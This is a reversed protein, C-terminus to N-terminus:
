QLTKVRDGVKPPTSGSFTGDASLEEVNTIVIEGVKTDLKRLVRGTAPDRIVDDGRRVELKDGVKVGGKSGVNLIVTDGAVHAVLGEVIVVHTPLRGANAEIKKTVDAVAATVAEGLVTAAFNKSTMDVAGGAGAGGGAGSGVLTTGSRTSEGTGNVAALIEATETSVLRASLAVVAKAQRRGVGGIGVKRGFDGFAGGGVSTTKDDRGFQTVSGMIIADVGLIRGIKAATGPDVRDSNAFNQESLIKDIAKREIVSFVADNVLREVMLDAIGRGVDTNTGGFVQAVSSSVTGYDFNMVAVRKKTQAEISAAFFLVVSPFLM